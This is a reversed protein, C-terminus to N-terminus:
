LLRLMPQCTLVPLYSLLLVEITIKGKKEEELRWKKRERLSADTSSSFSFLFIVKGESKKRKILFSFFSSTLESFFTKKKM